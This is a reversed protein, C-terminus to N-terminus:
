NDGVFFCNTLYWDGAIKEFKYSGYLDLDVGVLFEAVTDTRNWYGYGCDTENEEYFPTIIKKEIPEWNEETLAVRKSCADWFTSYDPDDEPCPEPAPVWKEGVPFKIRSLQFKRDNCFHSLFDEFEKRAPVDMIKKLPIYPIVAFDNDATAGGTSWFVFVISDNKVGFQLDKLRKRNDGKGTEDIQISEFRDDPSNMSLANNMLYINGISIDWDEARNGLIKKNKVDVNLVTMSPFGYKGSYGYYSSCTHLISLIDNGQTPLNLIEYRIDRSIADDNTLDLQEATEKIIRNVEKEFAKDSFGTIEPYPINVVVEIEKEQQEGMLKTVIKRTRTESRDKVRLSNEGCANLFFMLLVFSAILNLNKM